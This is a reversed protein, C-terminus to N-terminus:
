CLQSVTGLGPIGPEGLYFANPADCRGASIVVKDSIVYVLLSRRALALTYQLRIWTETLFKILLFNQVM